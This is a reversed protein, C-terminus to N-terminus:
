IEGLSASLKGTWTPWETIVPYVITGSNWDDVSARFLRKREYKEM